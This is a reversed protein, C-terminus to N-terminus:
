VRKKMTWLLYFILVLQIMVSILSGEVGFTGGNLLPSGHLSVSILATGASTGSVPFAFINGQFCNWAAHFGCAQWLSGTKMVLLCAFVGFLFLDLVPIWGMSPNLGHLLTFFLSSAIIATITSYRHGLGKFLWGRTLIEEASGQISWALFLVCLRVALTLSFNFSHIRVVGAVMMLLVTFTLIGAGLGWGKLFQLPAKRCELGLSRMSRKEIYYSWLLVVVIIGFFSFLQAELTRSWSPYFFESLATVVIDAIFEGAFLLIIGMFMGSILGPYRKKIIKM